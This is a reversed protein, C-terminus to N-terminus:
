VKESEEISSLQDFFYLNEIKSSKTKLCIIVMYIAVAVGLVATIIITAIDWQNGFAIRSVMLGGVDYVAHLIIATFINETILLSLACMAGILFSYGTQLLTAGFGAGALLNIFHTLGFVASSIAVAWFVNYKFKRVAYYCLPFILGRFILEEYFGISVCFLVYVAIQLSNANIAVNGNIVGIIPFNNVAVALAPLVMLIGVGSIRGKLAKDFGYKHIFIFAIVSLIIRIVTESLLDVTLKDAIFKEFLWDLPISVGGIAFLAIIIIHSIPAKLADMRIGNM